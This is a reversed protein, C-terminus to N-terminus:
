FRGAVGGATLWVSRRSAGVYLLPISGIIALAGTVVAITGGVLYDTDRPIVTPHCGPCAGAVSTIQSAYLWLFGVGGALAASGVSATAVGSAFMAPSKMPAREEAHATSVFAFVFLASCVARM